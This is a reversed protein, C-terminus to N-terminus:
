VRGTSSISFRSEVTQHYLVRPQRPARENAGRAGGESGHSDPAPAFAGGRLGRARVGREQLPHQRALAGRRLPQALERRLAPAAGRRDGLRARVVVGV